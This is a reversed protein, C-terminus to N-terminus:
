GVTRYVTTGGTEFGIGCVSIAAAAFELGPSTSKFRGLTTLNQARIIKSETECPRVDLREGSSSVDTEVM